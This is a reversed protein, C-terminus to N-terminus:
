FPYFHIDIQIEIVIFTQIGQSVSTKASQVWTKLHCAIEISKMQPSRNISKNGLIVPFNGNPGIHATTQKDQVLFQLKICAQISALTQHSITINDLQIGKHPLQQHGIQPYLIHFETKVATHAGINGFDDIQMQAHAIAM